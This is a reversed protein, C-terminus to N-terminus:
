REVHAAYLPARSAASAACPRGGNYTREISPNATVTNKQERVAHHNRSRPAQPKQMRRISGVSGGAHAARGIGAKVCSRLLTPAAYECPRPSSRTNRRTSFCQGNSRLGSFEQARERLPASAAAPRVARRSAPTQEPPAEVIPAGAAAPRVARCLPQALQAKRSGAASQWAACEHLVFSRKVCALERLVHPQM